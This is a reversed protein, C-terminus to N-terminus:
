KQQPSRHRGRYRWALQGALLLNAPVQESDRDALVSREPGEIRFAVTESFEDRHPVLLPTIRIRHNLAITQQEALSRLEINKYAVLQSWPGSGRLFETMRPMAYVPIGAAGMAEHGLHILGSYHGVHAHTLLIGTLETKESNIQQLLILNSSHM